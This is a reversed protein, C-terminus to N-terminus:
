GGIYTAKEKKRHIKGRRHRQFSRSRVKLKYGKAVITHLGDGKM